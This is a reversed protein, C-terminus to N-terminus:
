LSLCLCFSLSAYIWSVLTRVKGKPTFCIYRKAQENYIHIFLKGKEQSDSQSVDTQFRLLGAVCLFVVTLLAQVPQGIIM